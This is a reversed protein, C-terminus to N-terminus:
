TANPATVRRVVRRRLVDRAVGAPVRLSPVGRAVLPERTLALEADDGRVGLKAGRSSLTLRPDVEARVLLQQVRPHHLHVGREQGVRVLLDATEDVVQAREVQEVVRQEHQQGVVARAGLAAVAAQEALPHEEVWTVGVSPCFRARMSSSPDGLVYL